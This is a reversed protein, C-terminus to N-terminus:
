GLLLVPSNSPLPSQRHVVQPRRRQAGRGLARGRDRRLARPTRVLLSYQVGVGMTCELGLAYTWMWMWTCMWMWAYTGMSVLGFVGVFCFLFWVHAVLFASCPSFPSTGPFETLSIPSLIFPPATLSSLDGSM